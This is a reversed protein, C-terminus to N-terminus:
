GIASVPVFAVVKTGKSRESKVYVNGGFLQAREQMGMLGFHGALAYSTPADPANFGVGDDEITATATHEDFAIMVSVKKAQAHKTVNRLAEQVIRYLALEREADLRKEEGIVEFRAQAQRTLMELAPILGLEELYTPRL